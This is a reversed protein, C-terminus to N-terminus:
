GLLQYALMASFYALATMYVFQIATWKISATEKYTVAVTSLCQLSFAYFLLLSVCTAFGFAPQGNNSNVETKLRDRITMEEESDIAYITSITGVFVERAALSSIIAIGIKWDYGLPKISPEIARGMLGLYSNELKYSSVEQQFEEYEMGPYEEAVIEKANDFKSGGNTALVFLIISAALIIKGADWIFAKANTWVSLLVNKIDPMLYQPLEMILYSKFKTKLIKKFVFGAVLAMLVGLLYMAMLALGQANFIGYTEDPVILAILIVYVPLRASCTLLPTVMITILRERNNEITRAAMIAPVACAMGSILPVISKGSMGFRQMLKDTLYVIRPMYGSEELISFILFLIAIQPVFIVVGGIGPIIGEALLDTFYGEPLSSATIESLSAFTADIWDMPYTALWFIAQFVTFMLLLFILYGWVPHILVKDLKSTFDTAKLEDVTLCDDLYSNIHKYRLISENVKLKKVKIDEEHIFGEKRSTFEPNNQKLPQCLHLFNEYANNVRSIATFKKLLPLNDEEVFHSSIVTNTVPKSLGEKLETLGEEKKASIAYVPIGVKESLQDTDISIGRKEAADMLNVAMVLPLELDKLQEILYLSRKLNLASAVVLIIEPYEENSRDLIYDLVLEEDKSAPYLSSIGPLDILEFDLDDHKFKGKKKNVTVGPYNGTKQRLGCLKNFLTSKGINANGVLAVRKIQKHSDRQKM